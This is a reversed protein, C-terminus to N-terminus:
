YIWQEPLRLTVADGAAARGAREVSVVLGRNRRAAKPFSLEDGPRGTHGALARGSHRCPANQGEVVLAAGSEFFLRTGAPLFSLRPVGEIVLNAGIWGAEVAPLGLADGIERLEETSVVSLQRGSRIEDGGRYWPERAGASRTFGAHRDGAIGDLALDLGEVPDTEFGVPGTTRLTAVLRGVLRRGPYIVVSDLLDRTM